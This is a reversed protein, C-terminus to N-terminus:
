PVSSAFVEIRFVGLLESAVDDTAAPRNLPLDHRYSDKRNELYAPHTLLAHRSSPSHKNM